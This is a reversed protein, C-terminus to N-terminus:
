HVSPPYNEFESCMKLLERIKTCIVFCHREGNEILIQLLKHGSTRCWAKIDPEAWPHSSSMQLVNGVELKKMAQWTRIVSMGM